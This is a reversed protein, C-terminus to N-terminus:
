GATVRARFINSFGLQGLAAQGLGVQGLWVHKVWGQKVWGQKAWGQKVWGQIAKLVPVIRHMLWRDEAALHM